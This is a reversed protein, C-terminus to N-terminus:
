VEYVIIKEQLTWLCACGANCCFEVLSGWGGAFTCSTSLSDVGHLHDSRIVLCKMSFTKLASLTFSSQPLNSFCLFYNM